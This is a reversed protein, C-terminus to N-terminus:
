HSKTWRKFVTYHGWVTKCNTKNHLMHKMARVFSRPLLALRGSSHRMLWWKGENAPINFKRVERVVEHRSDMALGATNPHKKAPTWGGDGGRRRAGCRASPRRTTTQQRASGRNIRWCARRHAWTGSRRAGTSNLFFVWKFIWIFQIKYFEYFISYPESFYSVFHEPIRVVSDVCYFHNM